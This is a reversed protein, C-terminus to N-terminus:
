LHFSDNQPYLKEELEFGESRFDQFSPFRAKSMEFNRNIGAQVDFSDDDEINFPLPDDSIESLREKDGLYDAGVPKDSRISHFADFDSDLLCEEPPIIPEPTNFLKTQFPLKTGQKVM